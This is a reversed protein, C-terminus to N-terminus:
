QENSRHCGFKLLRASQFMALSRIMETMMKTVLIVLIKLNQEKIKTKDVKTLADYLTLYHRKYASLLSLLATDYNEHNEVLEENMNPTRPMNHRTTELESPWFEEEFLSLFKREEELAYIAHKQMLSM